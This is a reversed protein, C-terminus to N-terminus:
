EELMRNLKEQQPSLISLGELYGRLFGLNFDIASKFNINEPTILVKAILSDFDTELADLKGLLIEQHKKNM